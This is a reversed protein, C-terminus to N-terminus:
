AARRWEQAGAHAPVVEKSSGLPTSNMDLLLSSLTITIHRLNTFQHFCDAQNQHQPLLTHM